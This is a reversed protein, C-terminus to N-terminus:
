GGWPLVAEPHEPPFQHEVLIYAMNESFVWGPGSNVAKAYGAAFFVSALVVWAVRVPWRYAGSPAPPPGGRRRRWADVSLADATRAPALFFLLIVAAADGHSLDGLSHPIGLLYFGLVASIVAAPRTLLGVCALGLSLKWLISLASLTGPDLRGIGAWAFTDIPMWYVPDVAGWAGHDERAFLLLLGGYFLIRCVALNEQRERMFFFRNWHRLPDAM